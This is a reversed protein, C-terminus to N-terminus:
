IAIFKPGSEIQIIKFLNKPCPNLRGRVIMNTRYIITNCVGEGYCHETKEILKLTSSLNYCKKGLCSLEDLVILYKYEFNEDHNMQFVRVRGGYVDEDGWNYYYILNTEVIIPFGWGDIESIVDKYDHEM